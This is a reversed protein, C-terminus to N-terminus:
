NLLTLDWGPSGPRDGAQALRRSLAAESQAALKSVSRGSVATNGQGHM